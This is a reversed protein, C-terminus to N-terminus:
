IDQPHAALKDELDTDPKERLGRLRAAVSERLAEADLDLVSSEPKDQHVVIKARYPQAFGNATAVACTIYGGRERMANGETERALASLPCITGLDEKVGFHSAVEFGFRVSDL